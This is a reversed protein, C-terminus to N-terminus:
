NRLVAVLGTLAALVGALAGLLGILLNFRSRRADLETRIEAKVKKIGEPKLYWEGAYHGECWNEDERHESGYPREPVPVRLRTARGELRRSYIAEHQEWLMQDEMSYDAHLRDIEDSTAKRARATAMARHYARDNEWRLFRLEWTRPLPALLARRM